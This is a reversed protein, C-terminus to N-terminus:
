SVGRVKLARLHSVKSYQEYIGDHKLKEVDANRRSQPLWKVIYKDTKIGLCDGIAQKIEAEVEKKEEMMQAIHMKTEQFYAIKENMDSGTTEILIENATPYLERLTENDISTAAPPTKESVFKRFEVASQLMRDFLDQDFEIAKYRFKQGGILVAIHGLSRGTIGLQWMVQLIYEQPIEEGEWEKAKWASCTKCELLEDSGEILRDVQARFDSHHPHEYYKPSRRVKLGTEREFKKAVFDELESGLQVAENDSLDDPEIQGTKEAWLQLPSKWRNLGMISAIDSSGIIKNRDTM